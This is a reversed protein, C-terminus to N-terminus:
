FYDDFGTSSKAPRRNSFSPRKNSFSNEDDDSDLSYDKYSRRNHQRKNSFSDEDFFNKTWTGPRRSNLSRSRHYGYERNRNQFTKERGGFLSDTVEIEPLESAKELNSFGELCAESESPVDFVFGQPM